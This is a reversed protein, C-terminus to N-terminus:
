QILAVTSAQPGMEGAEEAYRVEMGVALRDFRGDLV